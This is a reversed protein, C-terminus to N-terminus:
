DIIDDISDSLVDGTENSTETLEEATMQDIEEDMNEGMERSMKKAWIAFSLPDNENIGSLAAPDVLSEILQEESRVTKFRSVLRRNNNNGCYHCLREEDRQSISCLVCFKKHCSGCIFEYLPM